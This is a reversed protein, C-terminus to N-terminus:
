VGDRLFPRTTQGYAPRGPVELKRAEKRAEKSAREKLESKALRAVEKRQKRIEKADQANLAGGVAILLAMAVTLIKKM